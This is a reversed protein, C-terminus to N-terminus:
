ENGPEAEWEMQCLTFAYNVIERPEGAPLSELFFERFHNDMYWGLRSYEQEPEGACVINRFLTRFGVELADLFEEKTQIKGQKRKQFILDTQDWVDSRFRDVLRKRRLRLSERNLDCIRVTERGQLSGDKVEIIGNPLFTIHDEPDDLEPNLLLPAEALLTPFDARWETRKVHPVRVRIGRIPFQNSKKRNCIPCSLLLNSWEYALWYYGPHSKDEALKKKPRFHDVQWAAGEDIRCECYACKNRYIERLHRRVSKGSYYYASFNHRNGEKLAAERRREAANTALGGPIRSYDKKVRIM